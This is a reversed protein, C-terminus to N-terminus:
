EHSANRCTNKLSAYRNLTWRFKLGRCRGNGKSVVMWKMSLRIEYLFGTQPDRAPTMKDFISFRKPQAKLMKKGDWFWLIICCRLKLMKRCRRERVLSTAFMLKPVGMCCNTNWGRRAHSHSNKCKTVGGCRSDSKTMKEVGGWRSTWFYLFDWRPDMTQVGRHALDFVCFM